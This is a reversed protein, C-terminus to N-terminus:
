FVKGWWFTEWRSAGDFVQAILPNIDRWVLQDLTDKKRWRNQDIASKPEFYITTKEQSEKNIFRFLFDPYFRKRDWKDDEYVLAVGWKGVLNRLYFVDFEEFTKHIRIQDLVWEIREEENKNLKMDIPSPEFSSL